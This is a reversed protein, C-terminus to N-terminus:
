KVEVKVLRSFFVGPKPVVIEARYSSIHTEDAVKLVKEFTLDTAKGDIYIRKSKLNEMEDGDLYIVLRGKSTDMAKLLLVGPNVYDGRRVAVKYIYLGQARVAKKGIRDDLMTMQYKTDAIQRQLSAVKEELSLLQNRSTMMTAFVRDKETQSKTKLNKIREYYRLDKAYVKRENAAMEKTLALTKKLSKLTVALAERQARDVRDDIQVVVGDGAIRGEVEDHAKLVQGAAAAKIVYTQYPELRAYHERAQCLLALITLTWFIKMANGWGFSIRNYLFDSSFPSSGSLQISHM